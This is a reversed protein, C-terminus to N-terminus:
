TSSRVIGTTEGLCSQICKGGRNSPSKHAIIEEIDASTAGEKSACDNVIKVFMEVRKEKTM